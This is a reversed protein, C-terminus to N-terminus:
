EKEEKELLVIAPTDIFVVAGERSYINYVIHLYTVKDWSMSSVALWFM